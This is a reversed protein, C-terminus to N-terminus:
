SVRARDKAGRRVGVDVNWGQPCGPRRIEAGGSGAVSRVNGLLQRCEDNSTETTTTKLTRAPATIACSISPLSLQRTDDIPTTTAPTPISLTHESTTSPPIRGTGM